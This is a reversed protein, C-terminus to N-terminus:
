HFAARARRLRAQAVRFTERHSTAVAHAVSAVQEGVALPIRLHEARTAGVFWDEHEEGGAGAFSSSLHKTGAGSFWEGTPSVDVLLSAHRARLCLIVLPMHAVECFARWANPLADDAGLPVILFGIAKAREFRARDGNTLKKVFSKGFFRLPAGGRIAAEIDEM